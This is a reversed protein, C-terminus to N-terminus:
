SKSPPGSSQAPQHIETAQPLATQVPKDVNLNSLFQINANDVASQIRDMEERVTKACTRALELLLSQAAASNGEKNKQIVDLVQDQYNNKVKRVTRAVAAAAITETMMRSYNSFLQDLIVAASIVIGLIVKDITLVAVSLGGLLTIAKLTVALWWRCAARWEYKKRAVEAVDLADQLFTQAADAANGNPSPLM